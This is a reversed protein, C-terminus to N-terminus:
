AAWKRCAARSPGAARRTAGGPPSRALLAGGRPLGGRVRALRSADRGGARNARLARDRLGRPRRGPRHQGPWRGLATRRPEGPGCGTRDRGLTGLQHERRGQRAGPPLPRSRRPVRERRRLEGQGSLGLLSAVSSFLVLSAGRSDALEHVHWAGQVKPAMARAFREPTQQLLIGDDLLGAAHVIGSLPPLSGDIESALRRADAPAAVDARVVRVRAGKREIGAIAKEADATPPRRGALVLARAGRDALWGAVALGLAGLGGTILCTGAHSRLSSPTWRSSCPTPITSRSRSRGPTGPRRWTGSRTEGDPVRSLGQRRRAFPGRVRGPGPCRRAPGLRARARRPDDPRPRDRLVVPKPPVAGARAARRRLHGEQRDGPFPRLTAAPGLSAPVFEGALSNLVVDVGEGATRELVQDRFALSRSDMVHRVGMSEVLSRKEPSGATAFVEAGVHHAIQIAALGVGGAAAHILVREGKRLRALHNLAYHATLYVIPLTAAQEVALGAPRRRVLRADALAHSALCDIAVALVDDGPQLDQVGDGVATVKGACEIGLPGVGKPYGPYVGLASMVNMFNLGTAEVRIEVEGAGPTKRVVERLCLGDLIGPTSTGALFARDAAPASRAGAPPPSWPRLRAVFREPGRLGIQDEAGGTELETVLLGVEVDDADRSLDVLSCHLEPHESAAVRGLGWLPSQEVAPVEGPCVAQAGASVLWLRPSPGDARAALAQVVRTPGDCTLTRAADLAGAGGTEASPADLSGLHVVGRLREPGTESSLLAALRAADLADDPEGIRVVHGARRLADALRAGFGRRDPLVLWSGTDAPREGLSEARAELVWTVEHFADATLGKARPELPVLELGEVEVFVRGTDDALTVDARYADEATQTAAPLARAWLVTATEPPTALWRLRRLGAPVWTRGATDAPLAAVGLQFAADLLAPHVRHGSAPLGDPLTLRGWVTQAAQTLELLARFAPGYELGRAAMARFHEDSAALASSPLEIPAEGEARGGRARGRAHLTWEASEPSRSSIRVQWSEGPAPTLAVQVRLAGTAPLVLAQEIKLEELSLSPAASLDGVASLAMECFAAAPFVVAGNVRHDALYPMRGVGIESEWFHGPEISSALHPGLLGRVPAQPPGAGAPEHWHRERQWPYTPLSVVRGPHRVQRAWDIELGRSYLGGLAALISISEDEDRVLSGLAAGGAGLSDLDQQMAAVLVPHPSVELFLEHGEQALGRVATSFLVPERLNRVWYGADLDPGAAPLGTVTSFLRVAAPGARLGEISSGLEAMLPDMHPSHSAVDVKVRRAFVDRRELECLLEDIADADGSVVTSRSSNSVAVSLRGGFGHIAERADDFSLEVVAMAGRGSVRKMLESRRSIVRAADDLSLAGAVHAAAVEGMSHGVIASPEVGWSRWLAALSVQMAFLTPQVM